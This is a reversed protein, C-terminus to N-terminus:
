EACQEKRLVMQRRDTHHRRAIIGTFIKVLMLLNWPITLTFSKPNWSRKCVGEPKKHFKTKARIHKSGDPVVVAYQHNNRSECDDSLVKHDAGVLDGFNDARPVAEGNRRRCTVRIIKTRKCIECDTKITILTLQSPFPSSNKNNKRIKCPLLLHWQHKWSRVRTRSPKRSNRTRLTSSISEGCGINNTNTHIIFLHFWDIWTNTVLRPGNQHCIWQGYFIPDDLEHWIYANWFLKLAYIHCNELLNWKKKKLTISAHLLYKTSNNLRRTQWSWLMTRCVEKCSWGHWLVM